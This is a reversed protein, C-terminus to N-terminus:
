GGFLRQVYMRSPMGNEKMWRLSSAVAEQMGQDQTKGKYPLPPPLFWLSRNFPKFVLGTPGRVIIEHITLKSGEIPGRVVQESATLYAIPTCAPDIRMCLVVGVVIEQTQIIEQLGDQDNVYSAFVYTTEKEQDGPIWRTPSGMTFTPADEVGDGVLVHKSHLIEYTFHTTPLGRYWIMQGSSVKKVWLARKQEDGKKFTDTLYIEKGIVKTMSPYKSKEFEQAQKGSFQLNFTLRDYPNIHLQKYWQYLDYETIMEEYTKSAKLAMVTLAPVFVQEYWGEEAGWGELIGKAESVPIRQIVGRPGAVRRIDLPSQRVPLPQRGGILKPHILYSGVARRRMREAGIAAARLSPNFLWEMKRQTPDPVRQVVPAHLTFARVRVAQPNVVRPQTANRQAMRQIHAAYPNVNPHVGRSQPKPHIVGALGRNAGIFFGQTGASQNNAM